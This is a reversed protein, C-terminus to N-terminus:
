RRTKKAHPHIEVGREQCTFWQDLNAQFAQIVECQRQWEEEAPQMIEHLTKLTVGREAFYAQLHQEYVAESVVLVILDEHLKEMQEMRATIFQHQATGQSFGTLGRQAAEYELTIQQRLRAVESLNHANDM